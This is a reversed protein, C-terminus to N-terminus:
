GKTQAETTPVAAIAAKFGASEIAKVLDEANVAETADVTASKHELDVKAGSVGKVALLAAEVKSVCGGCTMGSVNFTLARAAAAAAEGKAHCAAKASASASKSASCSAGAGATAADAKSACSAKSGATAASAGSACGSKGGSNATAADAKASCSAKAGATAASAGSACCGSKGGAPMTSAVMASSGYKECNAKAAMAVAEPATEVSAIAIMGKDWDVDAKVVYIADKVGSVSKCAEPPCTAKMSKGTLDGLALGDANTASMVEFVCCSTGAAACSSGAPASAMSVRGVLTASKTTCALAMSAALLTTGAALAVRLAASKRM